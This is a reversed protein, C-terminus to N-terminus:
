QESSLTMQKVLTATVDTAGPEGYFAVGFLLQRQRAAFNQSSTHQRSPHPVPISLLRRYHYPRAVSHAPTKAGTHSTAPPDNAKYLSRDSANGRVSLEQISLPIEGLFIDFEHHM